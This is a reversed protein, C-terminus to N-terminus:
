LSYIFLRFKALKICSSLDIMQEIVWQATEIKMWHTLITEPQFPRALVLAVDSFVGRSTHRNGLTLADSALAKSDLVVVNRHIFISLITKIWGFRDNSRLPGIFSVM